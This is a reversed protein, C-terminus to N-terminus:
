LLISIGLCLRVAYILLQCCPGSASRDVQLIYLVGQTCLQVHHLCLALFIGLEDQQSNFKMAHPNQLFVHTKRSHYAEGCPNTAILQQLQHAVMM